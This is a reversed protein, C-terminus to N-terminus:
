PQEILKILLGVEDLFRAPGGGATVDDAAASAAAAAAAWSATSLLAATPPAPAMATSASSPLGPGAAATLAAPSAPGSAASASGLGHLPQFAAALLAGATGGSGVDAASDGATDAAGSGGGGGRGSRGGGSSSGRRRAAAEWKAQARQIEGALARDRAVSGLAALWAGRLDAWGGGGAGAARIFVPRHPSARTPVGTAASSSAAPAPPPASASTSALSDSSLHRRPQVLPEAARQGASSVGPGSMRRPPLQQSTAAPTGTLPSPRSLAAISRRTAEIVVAPMPAAAPARAARALHAIHRPRLPVGANLFCYPLQFPHVGDVTALRLHTLRPPLEGLWLLLDDFAARTLEHEGGYTELVWQWVAYPHSQEFCRLLYPVTSVSGTTGGGGGGGRGSAGAGGGSGGASAGTRYSTIPAAPDVLLCQRVTAVPLLGVAVLRSLLSRSPEGSASLMSAAITAACEVALQPPVFPRVVALLSELDSSASERMAATLLGQTLRFGRAIFEGVPPVLRSSSSSLSSSSSSSSSSPPPVKRSAASLAWRMTLTNIPRLDLGNNALRDFLAVDTCFVQYIRFTCTPVEDVLPVFGEETIMSRITEMNAPTPNNMLQDFTAADDGFCLREAQAAPMSTVVGNPLRYMGEPSHEFLAIPLSIHKRVRSYEMVLWELIESLAM